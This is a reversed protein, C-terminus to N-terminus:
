EDPYIHSVNLFCSFVSFLLRLSLSFLFRYLSASQQSSYRTCYRHPGFIRMDPEGAYAETVLDEGSEEPPLYRLVGCGPFERMGRDFECLDTSLEKSGIVVCDVELLEVLVIDLNWWAVFGGVLEELFRVLDVHPSLALIARDLPEIYPLLQERALSVQPIILCHDLFINLQCLLMPSQLMALLLNLLRLLLSLQVMVPIQNSARNQSKQSAEIVGELLVRLLSLLLAVLHRDFLHTQLM